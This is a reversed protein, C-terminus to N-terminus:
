EEPEPTMTTATTVAFCEFKWPGPGGFRRGTNGPVTDKIRRFLAIAEACDEAEFYIYSGNDDVWSDGNITGVFRYVRGKAEQLSRALGERETTNTSQVATTTVTNATENANSSGDTGGCAALAVVLGVVGVALGRSRKM